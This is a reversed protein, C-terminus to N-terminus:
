RIHHGGAALHVHSKSEIRRMELNGPRHDFTRHTRALIPTLVGGPRQHQGDDYMAIRRKRTLADDHLGELHRLRASKVGPARHVDDDVILNTEGGAIGLIGSGRLVAAFRRLHNLRRDEM